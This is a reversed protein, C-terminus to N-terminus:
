CVCKSKIEALLSSSSLPVYVCYVPGKYILPTGGPTMFDSLRFWWLGQWERQCMSMNEGHIPFLLDHGYPELLYNNTILVRHVPRM